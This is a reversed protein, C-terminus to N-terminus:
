EASRRLRWSALLADVEPTGREHWGRIWTAGEDALLATEAYGWSTGWRFRGRNDIDVAGSVDVRHVFGGNSVATIYPWGTYKDFLLHPLSPQVEQDRTSM